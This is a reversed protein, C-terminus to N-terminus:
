VGTIRSIIEGQWKARNDAFVADLRGRSEDLSQQAGSQKESLLRDQEERLRASKAQEEEVRKERRRLRKAELAKIECLEAEVALETRVAAEKDMEVIKQLIDVLM